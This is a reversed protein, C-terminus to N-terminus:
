GLSSSTGRGGIAPIILTFTTSEGATRKKLADALEGSSATVNAVVLVSRNWTM